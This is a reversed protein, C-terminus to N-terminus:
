ISEYSSVDVIFGNFIIEKLQEEIEVFYSKASNITELEKHDEIEITLGKEGVDAVGYDKIEFSKSIAVFKEVGEFNIAKGSISEIKIDVFM